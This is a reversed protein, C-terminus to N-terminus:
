DEFPDTNNGRVEHEYSTALERLVTALSFFSEVTEAQSRYKNALEREEKGNSFGHVGRSNFLGTNFGERM